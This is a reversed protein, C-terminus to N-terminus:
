SAEAAEAEDEETQVTDEIAEFDEPQAIIQRQGKVTDLFNALFDDRSSFRKREYHWLYGNEGDYQYYESGAEFLLHADNGDHFALPVIPKPLKYIRAISISIQDKDRTVRAM